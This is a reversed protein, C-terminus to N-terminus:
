PVHPETVFDIVTFTFCTAGSGVTVIEAEGEVILAPCDEVSMHDEVFAVDHVALPAHLPACLIEPEVDTAGVALPVYVSTQVPAPPVFVCDTVTVTFATGVSVV